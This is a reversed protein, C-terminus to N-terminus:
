RRSRLADRWIETLDHNDLGDLWAIERGFYDAALATLTRRLPARDRRRSMRHQARRLKRRNKPDDRGSLRIGAEASEPTRNGAPRRRRKLPAPPPGPWQQYGVAEHREVGIDTAAPRNDNTAKPIQTTLRDLVALTGAIQADLVDHAHDRPWWAYPPLGGRSLHRQWARLCGLREFLMARNIKPPPASIEPM